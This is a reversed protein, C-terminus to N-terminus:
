AVRTVTVGTGTRNVRFRKGTLRKVLSARARLYKEKSGEADFIAEVEMTLFPWKTGYRDAEM